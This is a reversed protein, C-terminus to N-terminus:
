SMELCAKEIRLLRREVDTWALQGVSRLVQKQAERWLPLAEEYKAMGDASLHLERVRGDDGAANDILGRRVLVDLNRTLTTGDTALLAALAGVNMPGENALVALLTFQTNRIDAPKLATDYARAAVRAARRLRYSVCDGPHWALMPNAGDWSRDAM